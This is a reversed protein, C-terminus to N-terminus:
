KEMVEQLYRKPIYKREDDLFSKALECLASRYVDRKFFIIDEIPQWYDYWCWYDFEPTEHANLNIKCDDVKIKMLFWKQKQGICIPTSNKRRFKDPVIYRLWTRTQAIVEVDSSTLGIEEQLERYAAELPQENERIGGQPFQWSNRGRCKAWLVKGRQNAVIIGVNPRYGHEDIM